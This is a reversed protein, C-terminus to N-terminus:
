TNPPSGSPFTKLQGAVYNAASVTILNPAPENVWHGHGGGGPQPQAERAAAGSATADTPALAVPGDPGVWVRETKAQFTHTLTGTVGSDVGDIFVQGQIPAGTEMDVATVTVTVPTGTPYSTPTMTVRMTYPGAFSEWWMKYVAKFKGPVGSFPAGHVKVHVTAGGETLTIQAGSKADNGETITRYNTESGVHEEIAMRMHPPRASRPAFTATIENDVGSTDLAGTHAVVAIGTLFVSQQKPPLIEILDPPHMETWRAPDDAGLPDHGAEWQQSTANYDDPNADGFVTHWLDGVGGGAAENHPRDTVLSGSLRVYSGKHQDLRQNPDASPNLPDYPWTCDVLGHQTIVTTWDHPKTRGLQKADRWGNVEIHLTPTAVYASHPGQPDGGMALIDGVKVFMGPDVGLQDLWDPDVEIQLAWDPDDNNGTPKADRLWGRLEVVQVGNPLFLGPIETRPWRTGPASGDQNPGFVMSSPTQSASPLEYQPVQAIGGAPLVRVSSWSLGLLTLADGTPIHVAHGSCMVYVESRDRERLMTGQQPVLPVPSFSGDPVVQVDSWAYGLASFESPDPIHFKAGGFIVYVPPSSSEKVLSGDALWTQGPGDGTGGPNPNIPRLAPTMNEM